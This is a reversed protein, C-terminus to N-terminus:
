QLLNNNNINENKIMDKIFIILHDPDVVQKGGVSILCIGTVLLSLIVEVKGLQHEIIMQQALILVAIIVELIGVYMAITSHRTTPIKLM